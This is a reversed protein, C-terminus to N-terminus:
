GAVCFVAEQARLNARGPRAPDFARPGAGSLGYAAHVTLGEARCLDLFDLVTCLHINETEYWPTPLARSQPMRGTRVLSARVRWHGFNPFSLVVRGGIRVARRLVPLPARLAQLSNSLVVADFAADPYSGLDTDADGQVVSLGSAVARAVAGADIELGYGRAGREAELRRLLAGDGCGVDLVRAGAPVLGEIVDYRAASM